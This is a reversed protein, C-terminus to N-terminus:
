YAEQAIMSVEARLDIFNEVIGVHSIDAPITAKYNTYPVASARHEFYLMNAVYIAEDYTAMIDAGSVITITNTAFFGNDFTFALRCFAHQDEYKNTMLAADSILIEFNSLSNIIKGAGITEVLIDSPVPSHAEKYSNTVSAGAAAAAVKAAIREEEYEFKTADVLSLTTDARIVNFTNYGTQCFSLGLKKSCESVWDFITIKASNYKEAPDDLVTYDSTIIEQGAAYIDWENFFLYKYLMSLNGYWDNNSTQTMVFFQTDKIDSTTLTLGCVYFMKELAWTLGVIPFAYFSSGSDLYEWWNSASDFAAHLNDYEVRKDQLKALASKVKINFSRTDENYSSIDVTGNFILTAGSYVAIEDDASFNYTAGYGAVGRVGTTVEIQWVEARLSFDRNRSLFPLPAASILYISLDNWGSNNHLFTYAM